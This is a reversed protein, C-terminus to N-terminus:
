DPVDFSLLARLDYAATKSESTVVLQLGNAANHVYVPLVYGGTWLDASYECQARLLSRRAGRVMWMEVWFTSVKDALHWERPQERDLAAIVDLRQRNLEFLREREGFTSGALYTRALEEIQENVDHLVPAEDRTPHRRAQLIVDVLECSPATFCHLEGRKGPAVRYATDTPYSKVV